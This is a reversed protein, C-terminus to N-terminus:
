SIIVLIRTTIIMAIIIIIIIVIYICQWDNEEPNKIMANQDGLTLIDM